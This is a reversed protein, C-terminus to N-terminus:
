EQDTAVRYIEMVELIACLNSFSKFKILGDDIVSTLSNALTFAPATLRRFFCDAVRSEGQRSSRRQLIFVAIKRPTEKRISVFGIRACGSVIWDLCSRGVSAM